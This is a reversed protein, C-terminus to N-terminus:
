RLLTFTMRRGVYREGLTIGGSKLTTLYGASVIHHGHIGYVRQSTAEGMEHCLVVQNECRRQCLGRRKDALQIGEIIRQAQAINNFPKM